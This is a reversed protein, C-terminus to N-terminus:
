CFARFHVSNYLLEANCDKADLGKMNIIIGALLLVRSRLGRTMILCHYFAPEGEFHRARKIRARCPRTTPSGKRMARQLKRWRM